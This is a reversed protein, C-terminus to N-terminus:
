SAIVIHIARVCRQSAIHCLRHNNARVIESSAYGERGVPSINITTKTDLGHSPRLRITGDQSLIPNSELVWAM